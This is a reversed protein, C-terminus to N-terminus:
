SSVRYGITIRTVPNRISSGVLIVDAGSLEMRLCKLRDSNDMGESKTIDGFIERPYLTVLNRVGLAGCCVSILQVARCDGAGTAPDFNDDLESPIIVVKRGQAGLGEWLRLAYRWDSAQANLQKNWNILDM